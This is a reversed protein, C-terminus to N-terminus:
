LANPDTLGLERLKHQHVVPDETIAPRFEQPNQEMVDTLFREIEDHGAQAALEVPVFGAYDRMFLQDITAPIEAFLWRLLDLHGRWSAKNVVGHGWHNLAVFNAGQNRLWQAIALGGSAAAWIAANCGADSCGELDLSNPPSLLWAALEPQQGWVAWHLCSVGKKSVANPDAGARVLRQAVSLAGNRCSWMLATRGDKSRADVDGGRGQELM